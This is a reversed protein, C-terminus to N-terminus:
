WSNQQMPLCIYIFSFVPMEEYFRYFFRNMIGYQIVICNEQVCKVVGHLPTEHTELQDPQVPKNCCEVDM